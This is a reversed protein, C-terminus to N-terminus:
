KFYILLGVQSSRVPRSPTIRNCVINLTHVLLSHPLYYYVQQLYKHSYIAYHINKHLNTKPNLISLTHLLITITM